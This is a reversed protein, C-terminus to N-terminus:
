SEMSAPMALAFSYLRVPGGAAIETTNLQVVGGGGPGSVDCDFGHADDSSRVRAWTATGSAQASREEAIAKFTLLGGSADPASPRSLTLVALVVNGLTITDGDQPQPGSYIRITAPGAGSDIEDRYANLMSDRTAARMRIIM